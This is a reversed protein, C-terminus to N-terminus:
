STVTVLTCPPAAALPTSFTVTLASTGDVGYHLAM